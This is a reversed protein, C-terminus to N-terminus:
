NVNKSNITLSSGKIDQINVMIGSQRIEPKSQRILRALIAYFERYAIHFYAEITIKDELNIKFNNKLRKLTAIVRKANNQTVRIPDLDDIDELNNYSFRFKKSVETEEIFFGEQILTHYARNMKKILDFSTLIYSLILTQNESSISNKKRHSVIMNIDAFQSLFESITKESFPHFVHSFVQDWNKKGIGKNFSGVVFNKFNGRNLQELESRAVRFGKSRTQSINKIIYERSSADLRNLRNSYKGYLISFINYLFNKFKPEFLETTLEAVEFYDGNGWKKRIKRFEKIEENSLNALPIKFCKSDVVEEELLLVIQNFVDIYLGCIYWSKNSKNEVDSIQNIFESVPTPSFWFDRYFERIFADEQEEYPIQMEFLTAIAKTMLTLNAVCDIILEPSHTKTEFREMQQLIKKHGNRGVKLLDRTEKHSINKILHDISKLKPAITDEKKLKRFPRPKIYIKVLYDELYLNFQKRISKNIELLEKCVVWKLGDDYSKVKQILGSRALRQFEFKHQQILESTESLETKLYTKILLNITRERNTINQIGGGFLLTRFRDNLIPNSEIIGRIEKLTKEPIKIPNVTLIQFNGNEFEKLAAKIFSRFTIPENRSPLGRYIKNVYKLDIERISDSNEAFALLRKNLMEYAEDASIEPIIEYKAYSGSYQPDNEILTKWEMLGAIFFAIKLNPNSRIFDDRIIQLNNIFKLAVQLEDKNKHLDDIFVVLGLMDGKAVLKELLEQIRDQTDNSKIWNNPDTQYLLKFIRCLCDYFMARFKILLSQFDQEAYLMIYVNFVKVNYFPKELYDFLTTKGSGFDGLFLRNKFLENPYEKTIAVFRKFIPTKFVVEEYMIKAIGALGSQEPFPDSKLGLKKWWPIFQTSSSVANTIIEPEKYESEDLVSPILMYEHKKNEIARQIDATSEDIIQKKLEQKIRDRIMSDSLKKVDVISITSKRMELTERILEDNIIYKDFFPLNLVEELKNKDNIVGNEILFDIACKAIEKNKPIGLHKTQNDFYFDHRIKKYNGFPFKKFLFLAINNKVFIHLAEKRDMKDGEVLINLIHITPM